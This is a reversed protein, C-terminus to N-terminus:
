ALARGRDQEVMAVIKFFLFLTVSATLPDAENLAILSVFIRSPGIDSISLSRIVQTSSWAFFRIGRLVMVIM